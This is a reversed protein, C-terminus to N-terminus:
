LRLPLRACDPSGARATPGGFEEAPKLTGGFHEFYAAAASGEVGLLSELSEAREAAEACQKLRLLTAPPTRRPQAEAPHPSQPNQGARIAAGVAPLHAPDRALRFQEIRLFVNKLEHGRMLRVCCVMLFYTM